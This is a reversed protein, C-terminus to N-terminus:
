KKVLSALALLGVVFLVAIWFFMAAAYSILFIAGILTIVADLAGPIFFGALIIGLELLLAILATLRNNM